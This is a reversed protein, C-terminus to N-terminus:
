GNAKALRMNKIRQCINGNCGCHPEIKWDAVEGYKKISDYTYKRLLKCPEDMLLKYRCKPCNMDYMIKTNCSKCNDSM